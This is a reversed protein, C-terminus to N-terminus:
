LKGKTALTLLVHGALYWPCDCTLPAARTTQRYSPVSCTAYICKVNATFLMKFYDKSAPYVYNVSELKKNSQASIRIL